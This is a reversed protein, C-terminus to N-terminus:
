ISGMEGVYRRYPAGLMMLYQGNARRLVPELDYALIKDPDLRVDGIPKAHMQYQSDWENLTKCEERRFEMEEPTFREEWIGKSYFDVIYNSELFTVEWANKLKRCEYNEGKRLYKAGVGIGSFADVQQNM